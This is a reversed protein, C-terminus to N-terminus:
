AGVRVYHAWYGRWPGYPEALRQISKETLVQQYRESAADLLRKETSIQNTRGLARIMVFSASWAGIGKINRLWAEVEAYDGYRLFSEDADVFANAAASLYDAKQVHRIVDALEAEGARALARAEPFADYAIGDVTLRAGYRETLAAKMRQGSPIPNRQTLIAWAANEFPTIFKVQHYGYLREILPAFAPDNRGIAYFATLDDDTSLYFAIRDQAAHATAASIPQESFLTYGLQPADETGSSSVRFVIPQGDVYVAKSLSLPTVTQEGSTAMFGGLFHLSQAFDFPAKPTISGVATIM